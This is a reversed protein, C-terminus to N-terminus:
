GASACSEDFRAATVRQIRDFRPVYVRVKQQLPPARVHKKLLSVSGIGNEGAKRGKGEAMKKSNSSKM